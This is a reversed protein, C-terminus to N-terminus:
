GDPRENDRFNMVSELIKYKFQGIGGGIPLVTAPRPYWICDTKVQSPVLGERELVKRIQYFM